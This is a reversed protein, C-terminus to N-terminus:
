SSVTLAWTYVVSSCPGKPVPSGSAYPLNMTPIYPSRLAKQLTWPSSGSMWHLSM